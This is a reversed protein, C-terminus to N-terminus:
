IIQIKKTSKKIVFKPYEKYLNPYLFKEIIGSSRSYSVTDGVEYPLEKWKDTIEEVLIGNTNVPQLEVKWSTYESM